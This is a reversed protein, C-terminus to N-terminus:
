NSICTKSNRIWRCGANRCFRKRSFSECGPPPPPPPPPGGVQRGGGCACCVTNATLGAHAFGGGYSACNSGSAYWACNFQPGDSDWWVEPDDVCNGEAPKNGATSAYTDANQNIWNIQASVRAYVGPFNIDACGYGWSVVGVQKGTGKSIIPGGSDGQCSDKGDRGACLMNATIEGADYSGCSTDYDVDVEMPVYTASGGSATTGYGFVTLDERDVLDDTDALVVPDYKTSNWALKMVMYDNDYSNSNYNPHKVFDVVPIREILDFDEPNTIPNDRGLEHTGILAVDSVGACHAACLVVNPRILSGGCGGLNVFYGYKRKPSVEIGGVIKGILGGDEDDDKKVAGNNTKVQYVNRQKDILERPNGKSQEDAKATPRGGKWDKWVNPRLEQASVSSAHLIVAGLAAFLTVSPIKM